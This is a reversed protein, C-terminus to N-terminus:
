FTLNLYIPKEVKVNSGGLDGENFLFVLTTVIKYVEELSDIIKKGEFFNKEVEIEKIKDVQFEVIEDSNLLINGGARYDSLITELNNKVKEFIDATEKRIQLSLRVREMSRTNLLGSKKSVPVMVDSEIKRYDEVVKYYENIRDRLTRFNAYLDDFTKKVDVTRASDFVVSYKAKLVLVPYIHKEYFEVLAETLFVKDNYEVYFDKKRINDQIKRIDIGNLIKLGEDVPSQREKEKQVEKEEEKPEEKIKSIEMKETLYGIYDEEKIELFRIFYESNFSLKKGIILDVVVKLKPFYEEFLFDWVKYFLKETKQFDSKPIYQSIARLATSVLVRAQDKFPHMLYLKKLFYKFVEKLEEPKTTERTQLYLKRMREIKDFLENNPFDNLRYIVEFGIPNIANLSRKVSNTLKEDKLTLLYGIIRLDLFATPVEKLTREYFRKRVYGFLTIVGQFYAEVFVRIRDIITVKLKDSSEKSLSHEYHVVKPKGASKVTSVSVSKKPPTPHSVAKEKAEKGKALQERIKQRLLERETLVKGGGKVFEKFLKERTEADLSDIGIKKKMEDIDKM